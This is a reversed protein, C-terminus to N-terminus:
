ATKTMQELLKRADPADDDCRDMWRALRARAQDLVDALAPDEIRNRLECPDSSLDYLEDLDDLHAVYKYPGWRLLRQFTHTGHGHHQCMLDERGRVSQPDRAVPLLSVGDCPDPLEAGAAELVTPVVDMNTVLADTASGEPLVGPWRLALPVRQTEEVMLSDKDFVGGQSCIADGHDATYVVLTNDTLRLRDLANLVRGM